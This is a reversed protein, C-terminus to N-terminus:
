FSHYYAYTLIDDLNADISSHIVCEANDLFKSNIVGPKNRLIYNYYNKLINRKDINFKITIDYIYDLFPQIDTKPQQLLHFLKENESVSLLYEDIEKKTSKATTSVSQSM